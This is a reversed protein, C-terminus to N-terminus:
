YFAILEGNKRVRFLFTINLKRIVKFNERKVAIFVVGKREM